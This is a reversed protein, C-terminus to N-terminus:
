DNNINELEALIIDELMTLQFCRRNEIISPYNNELITNVKQMREEESLAKPLQSKILAIEPMLSEQNGYVNELIVITMQFNPLFTLRSKFGPIGGPHRYYNGVAKTSKIEIGYGYYENEKESQIYPQLMLDVLFAPLIKGAYFAQNWKLLDGVTSIMGGAAGAIEMAAYHTVEKIEPHIAAMDFTYGHALKQFKSEKEKLTPVTDQTPLYTAQMGLPEFFADNLYRDLPQKALTEIILGLLCYGSNSYSFRTGPVFELPHMKFFTVLSSASLAKTHDFDPLSTYNPIGSSHVLLQHLTVINAWDPISGAWLAHDKPLYHLITKQLASTVNTKLINEASKAEKAKTYLVHLLAAATFQKTVSGILYQTHSLTLRKREIDAYGFCKEYLIDDNCAVLIVGNPQMPKISANLANSIKHILM